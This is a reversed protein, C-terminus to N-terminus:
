PADPRFIVPPPLDMGAAYAMLDPPCLEFLNLHFLLYLFFVFLTDEGTAYFGLKAKENWSTPEWEIPRGEREVKRFHYILGVDLIAVCDVWEEIPTELRLEGLQPLAHERPDPGEFAFIAGYVPPNGPMPMPQGHLVPVIASRDLRKVSRINEVGELIESRGLRAKVEIAAYVSESAFLASAESEQLLPACVADYVVVDVQRSMQGKSSAIEGRAVGYRAPLHHVLFDRLAGERRMGKEYSHRGGVSYAEFSARLQKSVARFKAAV